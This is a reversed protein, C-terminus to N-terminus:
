RTSERDLCTNVIFGARGGFHEAVIFEWCEETTWTGISYNEFNQAVWQRAKYDMQRADYRVPFDVSFPEHDEMMEDDNIAEQAEERSAFMVSQWLPNENDRIYWITLTEETMTEM